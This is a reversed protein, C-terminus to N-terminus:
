SLNLFFETCSLDRGSECVIGCVIGEGAEDEDYVRVEKVGDFSTQSENYHLSIRRPRMYSHLSNFHCSIGLPYTDTKQNESSLFYDKIGKNRCYSEFEFPTLAKM